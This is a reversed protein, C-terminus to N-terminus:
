GPRGCYALSRPIGSVLKASQARRYRRVAAQSGPIRRIWPQGGDFRARAAEIAPLQAEAWELLVDVPHRLTKGLETM